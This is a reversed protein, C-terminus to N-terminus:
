QHLYYPLLLLLQNFHASLRQWKFGTFIYLHIQMFILRQNIVVFFFFFDQSSFFTVFCHLHGARLSHIRAHHVHRLKKKSVRNCQARPSGKRPDIINHTHTYLLVYLPATHSKYRAARGIEQTSTTTNKIQPVHWTM